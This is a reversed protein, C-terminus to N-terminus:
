TSADRPQTDGCEELSAQQSEIRKGLEDSLQELGALEQSAHDLMTEMFKITHRLLKAREGPHLPKGEPTMIISTPLGDQIPFDWGVILAMSRLEPIMGFAQDKMQKTMSLLLDDIKMRQQPQEPRQDTM